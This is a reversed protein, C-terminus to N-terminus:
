KPTDQVTTTKNLLHAPTHIHPNQLTNANQYYTYKYKSNQITQVTKTNNQKHTNIRIQKRQILHM